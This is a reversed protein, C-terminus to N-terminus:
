QMVPMAALGATEETHRAFDNWTRAARRRRPGAGPWRVFPRRPSAWSSGTFSCLRRPRMLKAVDPGLVRVDCITRARMGNHHRRRRDRLEDVEAVVAPQVAHAKRRESFHHTRGRVGSGSDWLAARELDSSDLHHVRKVASTLARADPPM